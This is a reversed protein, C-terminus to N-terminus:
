QVLTFKGRLETGLGAVSYYYTGSPLAAGSTDRGEFVARHTGIGLSRDLLTSVRRGRADFVEVTVEGPRFVEFEVVTRPNSPNPYVAGLRMAVSAGPPVATVTGESLTTTILTQQGYWETRTVVGVAHFTVDGTGEGPATWTFSDNSLGASTRASTHTVSSTAVICAGVHQYNPDGGLSFSGVGNSNPSSSGADGAVSQLLFGRYPVGSSLTVTYTEGPIYETVIGNGDSVQVAFGGTGNQSPSMAIPNPYTCSGAGSSYSIVIPAGIAVLVVAGLLIRKM